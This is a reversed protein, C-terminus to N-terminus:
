EVFLLSNIFVSSFGKWIKKEMFITYGIILLSSSSRSALLNQKNPVIEINAFTNLNM